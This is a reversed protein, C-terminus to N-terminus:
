ARDRLAELLDPLVVAELAEMTPHTGDPIMVALDQGDWLPRLDILEVELEVALDRYLQYYDDLGPHIELDAPNTTMLYVTVGDAKLATVMNGIYIRVDAFPIEYFSDNIAAEIVVVDAHLDLVENFHDMLMASNHSDFGKNIVWADLEDHHAQLLPAIGDETLSTGFCAIMQPHSDVVPPDGAAGGGGGGGCGALVLCGFLVILFRKMELGGKDANVITALIITAVAIFFLDRTTM